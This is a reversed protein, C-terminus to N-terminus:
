MAELMYAAQAYGVLVEAVDQDGWGRSKMQAATPAISAATAAASALLFSSSFVMLAEASAM